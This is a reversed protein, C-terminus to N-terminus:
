DLRFTIESLLSSARRSSIRVFAPGGGRQRWVQLARPTVGLFTASQKESLLSDPDSSFHVANRMRAELEAIMEATVSPRALPTTLLSFDPTQQTSLIDTSRSM